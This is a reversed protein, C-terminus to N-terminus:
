RAQVWVVGYAVVAGGVATAAGRLLYLGAENRLQKARHASRAALTEAKPAARPEPKGTNFTREAESM